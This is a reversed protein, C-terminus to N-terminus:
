AAPCPSASLLARATEPPRERTTLRAQYDILGPMIFKGTLDVAAAGAPIKKGGGPLIDIIGGRSVVVPPVNRM